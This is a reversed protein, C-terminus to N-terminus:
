FNFAYRSAVVILAGILATLIAIPNALLAFVFLLPLAVLITVFLGQDFFWLAMKYSVNVWTSIGESTYTEEVCSSVYNCWMRHPVEFTHAIFQFTLGTEVGAIKLTESSQFAIFSSAKVTNVILTGSATFPAYAGEKQVKRIGNVAAFEGNALELKDGLKVISVPVSRGGKLFVMHDKSVELPHDATTAFRLYDARINEDRHGFSYIPEYKGASVLIRDGLKLEKMPVLGKDEVQCTADGSFCVPISPSDVVRIELGLYRHTVCQYYILDPTSEDPTFELRAAGDIISDACTTDLSALFEDYTGMQAAPTNDTRVYDCLPGAAQVNFGQVGFKDQETIELGAFVIEQLREAPTRQAYGGDISSTIYM